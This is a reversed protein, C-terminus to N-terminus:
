MICVHTHFNRLYVMNKVIYLGLEDYKFGSFVSIITTDLKSRFM